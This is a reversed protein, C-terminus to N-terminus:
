NSNYFDFWSNDVAVSDLQTM